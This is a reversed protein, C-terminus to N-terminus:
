IDDDWCGVNSVTIFDVNFIDFIVQSTAVNCHPMETHCDDYDDYDDDEYSDYNGDHMMILGTFYCCRLTALAHLM